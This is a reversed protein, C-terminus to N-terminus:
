TPARHATATRHQRRLEEPPLARAPDRRLRRVAHRDHRPVHQHRDASGDATRRCSEAAHYPGSRPGGDLEAPAIDLRGTPLKAGYPIPRGTDNEVLLTFSIPQARARRAHQRTAPPQLTAGGDGHGAGGDGRGARAGPRRRRPPRTPRHRRHRLSRRPLPAYTARSARVGLSTVAAISSEGKPLTRHVDHLFGLGVVGALRESAPATPQRTRRLGAARCRDVSPPSRWSRQRQRHGTDGDVGSGLATTRSIVLRSTVRPPQRPVAAHPEFPLRLGGRRRHRDGRRRAAPSPRRAGTDRTRYRSSRSAPLSRRHRTAAGARELLRLARRLDDESYSM